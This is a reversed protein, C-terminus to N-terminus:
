RREPEDQDPGAHAGEGSADSASTEAAGTGAAGTGTAGTGTADTGTADAPQPSTVERLRLQRAAREESRLRRMLALALVPLAGILLLSFCQDLLVRWRAGSGHLLHRRWGEELEISSRDLRGSLAREFSTRDDVARAVALLDDLGHEQTLWAVYSYSQAYARRLGDPDTPFARRLEGFSPLRGAGLPWVLEEESAGLYTDGAISQALGEHFWRPIRRGHPAVYQDLLEHVLEHVVVGRLSAGARRMEAWVLHIQHQGLLAFGPSGAHHQAALAAPLSARDAHVHVVFGRDPKGDFLRRLRPTEEDVMSRVREVVDPAVAGAGAIVRAAAGSQAGEQAAVIPAPPPGATM